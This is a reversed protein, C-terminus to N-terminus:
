TIIGFHSIIKRMLYMHAAVWFTKDESYKKINWSRCEDEVIRHIELM